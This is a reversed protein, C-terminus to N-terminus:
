KKGNMIRFRTTHNKTRKYIKAVAIVTIYIKKKADNAIVKFPENQKRTEKKSAQIRSQMM